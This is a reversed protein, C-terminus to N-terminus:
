DHARRQRRRAAWVSLAGLGLAALAAGALGATNAGTFPLEKGANAMGHPAMPKSPPQNSPPQHPPQTHPPTSPPHTPPTTPPKTPPTTPPKTPPTTPPKTPKCHCPPKPKHKHPKDGVHAHGKCKASAQGAVGVANGCVNVPVGVPAHVQNGGGISGNGSTYSDGSDNTVSASGKCKASAQGLVAVANGCANVPVSIPANLQNGSLIGGDGSTVSDALSPGSGLATFAAAILAAAATRRITKQM